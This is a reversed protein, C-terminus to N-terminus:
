PTAARPHRITAPPSSTPAAHRVAVDVQALCRGGRVQAGGGGVVAHDHLRHHLGDDLAVLAVVVIGEDVGLEVQDCAPVKRRVIGDTAAAGNVPPNLSPPQLRHRTVPAPPLAAALRCAQNVTQTDDSGFDQRLQTAHAGVVPSPEREEHGGRPLGKSEVIRPPRHGKGNGLVGGVPEAVQKAGLAHEGGGLPESVPRRQDFRQGVDVGDILGDPLAGKDGVLDRQVRFVAGFRTGPVVCVARRHNLQPCPRHQRRRPFLVADVATQAEDFVLQGVMGVDVAAPRMQLLPIEPLGDVVLVSRVYLRVAHDQRVRPVAQLKDTQRHFEDTSGLWPGVRRLEFAQPRGLPVHDRQQPAVEVVAVQGPRLADRLGEVQDLAAM